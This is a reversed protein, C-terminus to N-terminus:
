IGCARIYDRSIKLDIRPDRLHTDHEVYIWGDYGKALLTEIVKRNQDGMEGAGLECFRLRDYWADANRDKYVFDKVHVAVIRDFYRDAFYVPDGGAGAMHGTDLILGARPCKELFTEVEQSSEAVSGLHNHLGVKLGYCEATDIQANVHRCFVEMPGQASVTWIYRKGLAASFRITQMKGPALCTGFDMGMKRADAAIEIAEAQNGAELRELGDYGLEKLMALRQPYDYMGGYWVNLGYDAVGIKIM